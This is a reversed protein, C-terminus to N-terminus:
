FGGDGPFQLDGGGWLDSIDFVTELTVMICCVHGKFINESPPLRGKITTTVGHKPKVPM